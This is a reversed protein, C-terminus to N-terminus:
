VYVYAHHRCRTAQQQPRVSQASPVRKEEEEKKTKQKTKNKNTRRKTKTQQNTKTQKNKTQKQHTKKPAKHHLIHQRRPTAHHAHQIKNHHQQKARL